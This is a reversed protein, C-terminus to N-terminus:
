GALWHNELPLFLLNCMRASSDSYYYRWKRNSEICFCIERSCHLYQVSWLTLFYRYHDPSYASFVWGSCTCLSSCSWYLFQSCCFGHFFSLFPFFFLQNVPWKYKHNRWFLHNTFRWIKYVAKHYFVASKPYFDSFCNELLASQLGTDKLLKSPVCTVDESLIFGSRCCKSIKPYFIFFM